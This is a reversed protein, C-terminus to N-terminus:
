FERSVISFLLTNVWLEPRSEVLSLELIQRVCWVGFSIILSSQWICKDGCLPIPTYNEFGADVIQNVPNTIDVGNKASETEAIYYILEEDSGGNKRFLWGVGQLRIIKMICARFSNLLMAESEAGPYCEEAPDFESYTGSGDISVRCCNQEYPLQTWPSNLHFLWGPAHSQFDAAGPNSGGFSAEAVEAPPVDKFKLGAESPNEVYFIDPSGSGDRDQVSTGHAMDVNAGSNEPGRPTLGLSNDSQTDRALFLAGRQGSFSSFVISTSRQLPSRFNTSPISYTRTTEADLGFFLGLRLNQAKPTLKGHLDFFMGWFVDLISAFQHRGAQSFGSAAAVDIMSVDKKRLRSASHLAKNFNVASCVGFELSEFQELPGTQPACCAAATELEVGITDMISAPVHSVSAALSNGPDNKEEVAQDKVLTAEESSLEELEPLDLDNKEFGHDSARSGATNTSPRLLTLVMYLIRDSSSTHPYYLAPVTTLSKVTTHHVVDPLVRATIRSSFLFFVLFLLSAGSNRYIQVHLSQIHINHPMANADLLAMITCATERNTGLPHGHRHLAITDLIFVVMLLQLGNGLNVYGICMLLALGIVKFIQLEMGPMEGNNFMEKMLVSSASAKEPVAPTGAKGKRRSIATEVQNVLDIISGANTCQWNPLNQIEHFGPLLADPLQLCECPMLVTRAKTFAPTLIGQLRNLVYTYKGWLEPRNEVLSLELIRRVCWVGFSIILSSQWVCKERCFPIPTYSVVGADEIENVLNAIGVGNKSSEAEAVHYILEEDSGGNCRFLWSVGQLRLIKMICARFSGLLMAETEASPFCEEASAFESGTGSGDILVPRFHQEYPLRTWPSNPHSFQGTAPSQFDPFILAPSAPSAPSPSSGSFSPEAAEALPVDKFKLGAESPNEVFFIDPPGGGDQDQVSTGHAMDADTGSNEPGHSPMGWSNNSETGCAWVPAVNQGSLSAFVSSTSRHFTSRFNAFHMPFAGPTDADLGFFLGLRLNKAKTTLKGHHDFFMGWFDDLISAFQRRGARSFGSAANDDDKMSVDKERLKSASNVDEKINVASCVGFESEVQELPGTQPTSSAATESSVGITNMISAPLSNGPDNNEEVAHDQVLTIEESSLEQLEPLELDNKEFGHDFAHSGATNTSPRLPIFVMYVTFILSILTILLLLIYALTMAGRLEVVWSRHGYLLELMFTIQAMFMAVFAALAFIRLPWSLKFDGMLSRSSSVRLLPIVASPLLIASIVQCFLLLQYIEDSSSTHVCYLALIITLSKVTIHHFVVPLERAFFHLSIVEWCRSQVIATILSSFLFFMLFLLSAAPNKYIQDMLLFDDPFTPMSLGLNNFVVAASSGLVYNVLFIGTFSFLMTFFQDNILSNISARTSRRQQQVLLSQIYINHPMVNAGLLAMIACATERNMGLSNGHRFLPIEEESILMGFVYLLLTFGSVSICTVKLKGPHLYLSLFPFVSVVVISFFISSILSIGLLLNLGYAVGLAMSLQSMIMSIQVIFGLAVCTLNSYEERCIQALSKNTVLSIRTALYQCFIGICNFFVLRLLLDLGFHVGGEIAAAWKGLDVYGICLLLVPGIVEFIQLEMGSMEVSSFM